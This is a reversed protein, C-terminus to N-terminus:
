RNTSGDLGRYFRLWASGVTDLSFETEVMTRVRKGRQLREEFSWEMVANLAMRLGDSTAESLLGGGSEWKVLGTAHTTITPTRLSAAELNVMGVVESHSPVVVVWAGALLAEKEL